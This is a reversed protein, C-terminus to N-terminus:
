HCPLKILSFLQNFGQSLNCFYTSVLNICTATTREHPPFWAASIAPPAAMVTVGSLGNLIACIHSMVTFTVDDM